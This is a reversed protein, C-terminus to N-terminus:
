CTAGRVLAGGVCTCGTVVPDTDPGGEIHICASYHACSVNCGQLRLAGGMICVCNDDDHEGEEEGAERRIILGDLTSIAAESTVVTGAAMRLAAQGRGFVHVVKGDKLVLPGEHTGPRLLVCGGPPCADVAAQVGEGPAVTVDFAGSSPELVAGNRKTRVARPWRGERHAAATVSCM